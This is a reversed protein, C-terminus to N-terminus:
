CKGFKKSLKAVDKHKVFKVLKCNCKKCEGILAPSKGNPMKSNKFNKFCIDDTKLTVKHRSGVCYFQNQTLPM